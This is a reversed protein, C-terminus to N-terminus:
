LLKKLDDRATRLIKLRMDESVGAVWPWKKVFDETTDKADVMANPLNEVEEQEKEKPDEFDIFAMLEVLFLAEEKRKSEARQWAWLTQRSWKKGTRPNILHVPLNSV